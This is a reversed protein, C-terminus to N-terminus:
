EGSPAPELGFADSLVPRLEATKEPSLRTLPPRPPGAPHGLLDLAAKAYTVFAPRGSALDARFLARFRRLQGHLVLVRAWDQAEAASWMAAMFAPAFNPSATMFGRAGACLAYGLVDEAGCIVPVRGGLQEALTQYRELNQSTEELGVFDDRAALRRLVALSVEDGNTEVLFPLDAPAAAGVLYAYTEEDDAHVGPPLVVKVADAGAERAARALAAVNKPAAEYLKAVVVARGRAVRVTREVLAAKEELTLAWAEGVLDAALLVTIGSALLREVLADFAPWDIELNDRFPTVLPVMPGRLSASLNAPSPTAM